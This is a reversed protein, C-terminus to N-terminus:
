YVYLWMGNPVTPIRSVTDLTATFGQTLATVDGNNTLVDIANAAHNAVDQCEVLRDFVEVAGPTYVRAYYGFGAGLPHSHIFTCAGVKAEVFGDGAQGKQAAETDGCGTFYIVLLGLGLIKIATKM